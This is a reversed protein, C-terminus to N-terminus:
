KKIYFSRAEEIKEKYFDSIQLSKTFYEEMKLLSDQEAKIYGLLYYAEASNPNINLEKNIYKEASPLDKKDIYYKAPVIFSSSCSFGEFILLFLALLLITKKM